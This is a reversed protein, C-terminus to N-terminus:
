SRVSVITIKRELVIRCLTISALYINKSIDFVLPNMNSMVYHFCSLHTKKFHRLRSPESEATGLEM